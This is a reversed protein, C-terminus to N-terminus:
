KEALSGQVKASGGDYRGGDKESKLIEKMRVLQGPVGCDVFGTESELICGNKEMSADRALFINKGRAESLQQISGTESYHRFDEESLHVTLNDNQRFRSMAEAVVNLFTEDSRELRIGIIKETIGGVLDTVDEQVADVKSDYMAKLSLLQADLRRQNETRQARIEDEAAAQGEAYGRAKEQALLKEAQERAGALIGEAERHAEEVIHQSELRADEAACRAREQMDAAERRVAELREAERRVAMDAPNEAAPEPRRPDPQRPKFTVWEREVRFSSM